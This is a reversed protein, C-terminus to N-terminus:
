LFGSRLGACRALALCCLACRACWPCLAAFLFLPPFSVACRSPRPSGLRSVLSHWPCRPRLPFHCFFTPPDRPPPCFFVCLAVGLPVRSRFACIAPSLLHALLPPLLLCVLLFFLSSAFLHALLPCGWGTPPRAFSFSLVALAFTFLVLVCGPPRGTPGPWSSCVCVSVRRARAHRKGVRFDSTDADVRFLRPAGAWDRASLRVTRSVLRTLSQTWFWGLARLPLGVDSLGALAPGMAPGRVPVVRLSRLAGAEAPALLPCWSGPERGAEVQGACGGLLDPPSLRRYPFADVRRSLRGSCPSRSSRVLRPAGVRPWSARWLPVGGAVALACPCTCFLLRWRTGSVRVARAVLLLGRCPLLNCRFFIGSHLSAGALLRGFYPSRAGVGVCRGRPWQTAPGPRVGLLRTTPPPLTGWGPCGECLCLAGGETRGQAAGVARMALESSRASRPEHRTRLCAGGADVSFPCHAGAAQEWSPCNHSLSDRM